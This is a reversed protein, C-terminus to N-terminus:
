KVHFSEEKSFENSDFSIRKITSASDPTGENIKIIIPIEKLDESVFKIKYNGDQDAKCKYGAVEVIAGEVEKSGNKGDLYITGDIQLIVPWEGLIPIRHLVTNPIIILGFIILSIFYLLLTSIKYLNTQLDKLKGKIKLKLLKWNQELTYKSKLM